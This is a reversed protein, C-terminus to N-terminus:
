NMRTAKTACGNSAQETFNRGDSGISGTVSVTSGAYSVSGSYTRGTLKVDSTGSKAFSDNVAGRFQGGGLARFVVTGTTTVWLPCTTTYTWTGALSPGSPAQVVPCRVGPDSLLADLASMTGLTGRALGSGSADIWREFAARTKPGSVGDPTGSDCGASNLLSQTERLIARPDAPEPEPRPVDPALNDRLRVALEYSLESSRDSYRELFLDLADATGLDRALEFDNRMPDAAPSPAAPQEITVNIQFYFEGLLEDYYAPTQDHQVQRATARVDRRLEAVMSRLELGPTKLRPLLARTFISNRETDEDSLRDLAVQGAGASFIVFTGEPAAIRGLGRTRGISRGASQEFPNDRCADVIVISTRAGTARVRDLLGSLPISESKIFDQAATDPAEIDTPLLYNEGEIEVGHGAFFVLATDGPELRSTFDSIARNIDRRGANLASITEFGQDALTAGVAEADAVAKALVPVNEYDNNGIVLALRDAAFGSQAACLILLVFVFRM